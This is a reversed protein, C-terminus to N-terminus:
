PTDSGTVINKLQSLTVEKTDGDAYTVYVSYGVGAFSFEPIKLSTESPKMQGNILEYDLTVSRFFTFVWQYTESGGEVQPPITDIYGFRELQYSKGQKYLDIMEYFDSPRYIGAQHGELIFSGKDVWEIVKVPAFVLEPPENTITTSITLIHEKLFSLAIPISAEQGPIEQFMAHPLIGSFTKGGATTITLMPRNEDELLGQPPLVFNQSVYVTLNEPIESHNESSQIDQWNLFPSGVDTNDVLTLPTYPSGDLDLNGTLRDYSSPTQAISSITVTAGTSLDLEDGVIDNTRDATVILRIRSMNHHLDFNIKPSGRGSTQKGWLLDNSGNVSDFPAAIYPNESGFIVTTPIVQPDINLSPKVNDLFLTPTNGGGIMDWELEEGTSTTVIASGTGAFSGSDFDATAVSNGNAVPYTLYYNGNKVEDKAQYDRTSLESAIQASVKLHVGKASINDEMGENSCSFLLLSTAILFIIAFLVSFKDRIKDSM